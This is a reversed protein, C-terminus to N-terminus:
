HISFTRDVVQEFCSKTTLMQIQNVRILTEHEEM